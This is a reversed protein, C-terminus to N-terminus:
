PGTEYSYGTDEMSGSDTTDSDTTGSDVEPPPAEETVWDSYCCDPCSADVMETTSKTSISKTATTTECKWQKICAQEQDTISPPTRPEKFGGPPPVLIIKGFGPKKEKSCLIMLQNKCETWGPADVLRNCDKRDKIQDKYGICIPLDKNWGPWPLTTATGPKADKWGAILAACAKDLDVKGDFKILKDFDDQKCGPFCDTKDEGYKAPQELEGLPPQSPSCGVIGIFLVLSASRISFSIM